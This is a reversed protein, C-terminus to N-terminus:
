EIVGGGKDKWAFWLVCESQSSFPVFNIHAMTVRELTVLGCVVGSLALVSGTCGSVDLDTVHSSRLSATLALSAQRASRTPAIRFTTTM